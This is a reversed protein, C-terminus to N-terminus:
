LFGNMTATANIAVMTPSIGFSVYFKAMSILSQADGNIDDV